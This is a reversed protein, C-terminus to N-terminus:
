EYVEVIKKTLEVFKWGDFYSGEHSRYHGYVKVYVVISKKKYLTKTIKLVKLIEYYNEGGEDQQIVEVTTSYDNLTEIRFWDLLIGEAVSGSEGLVIAGITYPLYERNLLTTIKDKFEQETM